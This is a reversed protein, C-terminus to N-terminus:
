INLNKISICLIFYNKFIKPPGHGGGGGKWLWAIARGRCGDNVLFDLVWILIAFEVYRYITTGLIGIKLSVGLDDSGLLWLFNLSLSLPNHTEDTVM